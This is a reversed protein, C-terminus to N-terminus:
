FHEPTLDIKKNLFTMRFNQAVFHTQRGGLSSALDGGM